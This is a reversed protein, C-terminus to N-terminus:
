FFYPPYGGMYRPEISIRMRIGFFRIIEGVTINTWKNGLYLTSKKEPTDRLACNNRHAAIGQFVYRNTAICEFIFQLITNFRNAMGTKLGHPDNYNDTEPLGQVEEHDGLEECSEWKWDKSVFDREDEKNHLNFTEQYDVVFDSVEMDWNSGEDSEIDSDIVDSVQVIEYNTHANTNVTRADEIKDLIGSIM